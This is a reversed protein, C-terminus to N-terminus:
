RGCAHSAMIPPESCECTLVALSRVCVCAAHTIGIQVRRGQMANTHKYVNHNHVAQVGHRYAGVGELGYRPKCQLNCAISRKGDLLPDKHDKLYM